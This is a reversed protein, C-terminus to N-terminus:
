KSKDEISKLVEIAADRGQMEPPYPAVMTIIEGSDTHHYDCLLCEYKTQAPYSTLITVMVQGNCKPCKYKIM